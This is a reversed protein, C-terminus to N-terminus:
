AKGFLEVYRRALVPMVGADGRYGSANREAAERTAWHSTALRRGHSVHRWGGGINVVEWGTVDLTQADM